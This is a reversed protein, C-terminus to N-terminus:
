EFLAAFDSPFSTALRNVNAHKHTRTWDISIEFWDNTRILLRHKNWISSCWKFQNSHWQNEAKNAGLLLLLLLLLLRIFGVCIKKLEQNDEWVWLKSEIKIKRTSHEIIVPFTWDPLSIVALLMWRLFTAERNNTSNGENLHFFNSKIQAEIMHATTQLRTHTHTQSNSLAYSAHWYWKQSKINKEIWVWARWRIGHGHWVCVHHSIKSPGDAADNATASDVRKRNNNNAVLKFSSHIAHARKAPERARVRWWILGDLMITSGPTHARQLDM